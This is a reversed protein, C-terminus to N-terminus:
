DGEIVEFQYTISTFMMKDSDDAFQPLLMTIPLYNKGADITLSTGVCIYSYNGGYIFLLRYDINAFPPIDDMFEGQTRQDEFEYYGVNEDSKVIVPTDQMNVGGSGEGWEPKGNEDVTLVKGADASTADPALHDAIYDWNRVESDVWPKKKWHKM